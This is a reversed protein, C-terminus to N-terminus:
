LARAKGPNGYNQLRSIDGFYLLYVYSCASIICFTWIVVTDSPYISYVLISFILKFILSYLEFDLLIKQKAYLTICSVSPRAILSLLYMLTLPIIFRDANAYEKPLIQLLDEIFIVV